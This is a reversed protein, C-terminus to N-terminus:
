SARRLQVRLCRIQRRYQPSTGTHQHKEPVTNVLIGLQGFDSDLLGQRLFDELLHIGWRLIRGDRDDCRGFELLVVADQETDGGAVAVEGSLPFGEEVGGAGLPLLTAEPALVGSQENGGGADTSSLLGSANRGHARESMVAHDIHRQSVLGGKALEGIEVLHVTTRRPTRPGERYTEGEEIVLVRGSVRGTNQSYQRSFGDM